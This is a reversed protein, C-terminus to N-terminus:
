KALIKILGSIYNEETLESALQIGNERIRLLYNQSLILHKILQAMEVPKSFNMLIAGNNLKKFIEKQKLHPLKTEPLYLSNKQEKSDKILIEAAGILGAADLFVPCGALAAEIISIGFPEYYATHIYCDSTHYFQILESIPIKEKVIIVDAINRETIEKQLSNWYQSDLREGILLYTFKLNQLKLSEIIPFIREIKKEPVLRSVTMLQFVMSDNKKLNGQPIMSNQELVPPYLLYISTGGRERVWNEDFSSLVISIEGEHAMLEEKKRIIEFNEKELFDNEFYSFIRFYQTIIPINLQKKLLVAFDITHWDIAVVMDPSFAKIKEIRKTCEQFFGQYDSHIGLDRSKKLEIQEIVLSKQHQLEVLEKDQNLNGSPCFVMVEYGNKVLGLVQMRSLTGNGSFIPNIFDLTLYVLRKRLNKIKKERSTKDSM